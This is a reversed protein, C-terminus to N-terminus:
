IGKIIRRLKIQGESSSLLPEYQHCRPLDVDLQRDIPLVVDVPLTSYVHSLDSPVELLINWFMRRCMKPIHHGLARSLRRRADGARKVYIADYAYQRKIVVGDISNSSINVNNEEIKKAIETLKDFVTLLSVVHCSLSMSRASYQDVIVSTGIVVPLRLVAPLRVDSKARAKNIRIMESEEDGGMLRWCSYLEKWTMPYLLSPVTITIPRTSYDYINPQWSSPILWKNAELVNSPSPREAVDVSLMSILMSTLRDDNCLSTLAHVLDSIRQESKLLASGLTDDGGDGHGCLYKIIGLASESRSVDHLQKELDGNSLVYLALM